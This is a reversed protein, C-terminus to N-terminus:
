NGFIDEMRDRTAKDINTHHYKSYLEKIAEINGKQAERLLVDSGTSEEINAFFLEREQEMTMDDLIFKEAKTEDLSADRAKSYWSPLPADMRNYVKKMRNLATQFANGKKWTPDPNATLWQYYGRASSEPNARGGGSEIERVQESFKWLTQPDEISLRKQIAQLPINDAPTGGTQFSPVGAKIADQEILHHRKKAAADHEPPSDHVPFKDWGIRAALKASDEDSLIEGVTGEGGVSWFSPISYVRGDPGTVGIVRITVMRGNEDLGYTKDNLHKRHYDLLFQEKPSNIVTEESVNVDELSNPSEKLQGGSQRGILGGQAQEVEQPIDYNVRGSEFSKRQELIEDLRNSFFQSQGILPIARKLTTMNPREFAREAQAMTPGLIAGLPSAGFEASRKADVAFQFSGLFGSRYINDWFRDWATWKEKRPSKGYGGYKAIDRLDSAVNIVAMMGVGTALINLRDLNKETAPVGRGGMAEPAFKRYWRKMITNGFVTQFGKLNSIMGWRADSHWYPRNTVRPNVIVDNIFRIRGTKIKEFFAGQQPKGQRYWAIAEDADMGLDNLQRVFRQQANRSLNPNTALAKINSEILNQEVQDSFIRTLKTWQSLLTLDFFITNARNVEGGFGQTLRQIMSNEGTDLAMGIDRAMIDAESRSVGRFATRVMSRSATSILSPVARAFAAPGARELAVLPEALSALTALSLLRMNQYTSALINIKRGWSPGHKVPDVRQQLADAIDYIRNLEKPTAPRGAAAAEEIGKRVLNSLKGEKAGFLDAYSIRRAANSTYSTLIDFLNNNLFPELENDPVDKLFTRSKEINSMKKTPRPAPGGKRPREFLDKVMSADEVGSNESIEKIFGEIQEDKMGKSRLFARGAATNLKEVEWVRPFYNKRINMPLEALKADKAVENLLTRIGVVAKSLEQPTEGGRLARVIQLQVDQPLGERTERAMMRVGPIAKGIRVLASRPIAATLEDLAKDRLTTYKGIRKSMEEFFDGKDGWAIGKLNESEEFAHLMHRLQRFSPSVRALADLSSISKFGMVELELALKDGAKQAYARFKSLPGTPALEKGGLVGPPQNLATADKLSADLNQEPVIKSGTAKPRYTANLEDVFSGRPLIAGTDLNRWGTPTWEVKRKGTGHAKNLKQQTDRSATQLPKWEGRIKKLEVWRDPERIRGAGLREMPGLLGWDRLEQASMEPAVDVEEAKRWEYKKPGLSRVTGYPLEPFKATVRTGPTLDVAEVASQAGAWDARPNLTFFTLREGVKKAAVKGTPTVWQAGLWTYEVGDNPDTAKQGKTLSKPETNFKPPKSGRFLNGLGHTAGSISGGFVVSEAFVKAKKEMVSDDPKIATPGGLYDGFTHLDTPDAVIFDSLGFSVADIAVKNVPSLAEYKKALEPFGKLGQLLGRRLGIYPIVYSGVEAAIAGPRTITFTDQGAYYPSKVGLFNKTRVIQKQLSEMSEEDAVLSATGRIARAVADFFANVSETGFLQLKEGRTVPDPGRIRAQEISIDEAEKIWKKSMDPTLLGTSFDFGPTPQYNIM